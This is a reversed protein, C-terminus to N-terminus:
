FNQQLKIRVARIAKLQRNANNFNKQAESYEAKKQDVLTKLANKDSEVKSEILQTKSLLDQVDPNSVNTNISPVLLNNDNINLKNQFLNLALCDAKIIFFSFFLISFILINKKTM